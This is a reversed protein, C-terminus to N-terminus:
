ARRTAIDAAVFLRFDEDRNAIPSEPASPRPADGPWVAIRTARDRDLRTGCTSVWDRLRNRAEAFERHWAVPASASSNPDYSNRWHTHLASLEWVLEDHRHWLPPLVTPPLGYTTKLFKVWHDLDRWEAEAEDPGLTNWNVPRIVDESDDPETDFGSEDIPDFLEEYDAGLEWESNSGPTGPKSQAGATSGDANKESM